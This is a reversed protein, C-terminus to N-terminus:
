IYIYISLWEVIVQWLSLVCFICLYILLLIMMSLQLNHLCCRNMIIKSLNSTYLPKLPPCRWPCSLRKLVQQWWELLGLDCIQVPLIMLMSVTQGQCSSPLVNKMYGAVFQGYRRAMFRQFLGGNVDWNKLYGSELGGPEWPKFGDSGRPSRPDAASAPRPCVSRSTRWRPDGRQPTVQSWGPIQRHCLTLQPPSCHAHSARLWCPQEISSPERLWQIM